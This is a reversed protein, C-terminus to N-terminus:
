FGLCIRAAKGRRATTFLDRNIPALFSSAEANQPAEKLLALKVILFQAGAEEPAEGPPLIVGM